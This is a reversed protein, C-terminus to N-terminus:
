PVNRYHQELLVFEYGGGTQSVGFITKRIDKITRDGARELELQALQQEAELPYLQLLQRGTTIVNARSFFQREWGILKNNKGLFTFYLRKEEGGTVARHQPAPRSLNSLYDRTARGGGVAALEIGFFDLQRAYEQPSTATFRIEWREWRPIIDANGEGGPGAVRSDGRGAGTGMQPANGELAELTALQSSVVDTVAQLTDSLQPEMVDALEEVGPEELDRELGEAHEGRGMPEDIIQVPVVRQRPTWVQTLWVIFLVAVMFGILLLLAVVMGSVRDYASVKTPAEHGLGAATDSHEPSLTTVDAQTLRPIRRRPPDVLVLGEM